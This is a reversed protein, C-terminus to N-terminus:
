IDDRISSGHYSEFSAPLGSDEPDVDEIPTGGIIQTSRAKRGREEDHYTNDSRGRCKGCYGGIARTDRGCGRCNVVEGKKPMNRHREQLSCISFHM